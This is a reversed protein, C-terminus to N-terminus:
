PWPPKRELIKVLEEVVHGPGVISKKFADFGPRSMRIAEQGLVVEEAAAVAVDRIFRIRSLGRVRAARDILDIDGSSLRLSL